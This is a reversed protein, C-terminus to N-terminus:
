GAALNFNIGISDATNYDNSFRGTPEQNLFDIGYFKKDARAKSDILFNNTGVDLTSDGFLYVAPVKSETDVSLSWGILALLLILILVGMLRKGM